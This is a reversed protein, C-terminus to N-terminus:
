RRVSLCPVWAFSPAVVMPKQWRWWSRLRHLSSTEACGWCSFFLTWIQVGAPAQERAWWLCHDILPERACHPSPLRSVSRGSWAQCPNAHDLSCALLKACALFFSLHVTCTSCRALCRAMDPYFTILHDPKQRRTLVAISRLFFCWGTLSPGACVNTRNHSYVSSRLLLVKVSILTDNITNSKCRMFLFQAGMGLRFHWIAVSEARVKTCYHSFELRLTDKWYFCGFSKRTCHFDYSQLPCSYALWHGWSFPRHTLRPVVVESLYSGERM